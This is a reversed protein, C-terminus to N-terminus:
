LQQLRDLIYGATFPLGDYRLVLHEIRWGAQVQLVGRFQGTSNGEVLVIKGANRFRDLFHDSNLPWVQRFHLTAVSEGEARLREAAEAVAGQTSGWSVLLLDPADPGDYAPPLVDALLGEFKRNRKDVMEIRVGFDETIHGDPTHEDSDVVVLAESLTPVARPSVGSPTIEYRQYTNPNGVELMPEAPDPLADLDFPTVARYSDALFQDTLVFVPSQWKETQDFARHTLHFCEELSGPAFVARPFEGHGAFLVLNLDGQETRTPLGTAPGPRMALVVVIPTETIGALSVGECMLAFGGGSTATVARAGAYSAGLAMNIAAIEDEAQEVVIGLDKGKAILNLPVSTSPTMPYFSCFNAGAAMAGLAICENGNMCLAEGDGQAPVPCPFGVDHEAEWAYAAELVEVNAAVVEEGKKAFTAALLDSLVAKDLCVVSGLVGLAVTNWYIKKETLRKYPVKFARLDAGPDMEEGCVVVGRESLKGKHLDITEQNLAVLVDVTDGTARVPEPGFRLAFTNHGGRIRSQYDQTVCLEYGSRVLAKAMLTGITALGQGAEGGILINVSPDAM